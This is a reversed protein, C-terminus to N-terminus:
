HNNIDRWAPVQATKEALHTLPSSRQEAHLSCSYFCIDKWQVLYTQPVVLSIVSFIFVINKM